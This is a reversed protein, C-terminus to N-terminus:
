KFSTNTRHFRLPHRRGASEQYVFDPWTEKAMEIIEAIASMASINM